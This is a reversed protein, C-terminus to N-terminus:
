RPQTAPQAAPASSQRRNIIFIGVVILATGFLMGRTFIEDLLLIGGINAVIPVVYATMSSATAGFRKINYFALMMGGFTGMVAAYVLAGYGVNTVGSLDFGVLLFSLPLVMIAAAFMRISAVDFSDFTKMYKRAYITSGSGVILPVIVLMYGLWSGTTTDALGTEGRLALLIAGALALGIGISTRWTLKEDDLFFHAFLVTIAPGITILISTIGSSLYQLSMVMGSMPIATGIVGLVIAHIWLWRDKPWNKQQSVTYIVIHAIAAMTLRLGVYTLPEYQGVSFRSAIMTSGYMFGLLVIYPIAQSTM